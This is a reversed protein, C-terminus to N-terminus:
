SFLKLCSPGRRCSTSWNKGALTGTSTPAATASPSLAGTQAIGDAGAREERDGRCCPAGSRRGDEARRRRRGRAPPSGKMTGPMPLWPPAVASPWRATRAPEADGPLGDAGKMQAGHVADDAAPPRSGGHEVAVREGLGVADDDVADLRVGVEVAPRSRGSSSSPSRGPCARRRVEGVGCTRSSIGRTNPSGDAPEARRVGTAKPVPARRSRRRRSPRRRPTAGSSTRVRALPARERPRSRSARSGNRLGSRSMTSSIPLSM